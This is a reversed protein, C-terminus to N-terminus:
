AGSIWQELDYFGTIAIAMLTTAAVRAETNSRHAAGEKFGAWLRMKRVKAKWASCAGSEYEGRSIHRTLTRVISSVAAKCIDRYREDTAPILYSYKETPPPFSALNGTCSAPLYALNVRLLLACRGRFDDHQSGNSSSESFCYRRWHGLM